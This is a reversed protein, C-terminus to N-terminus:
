LKDRLLRKSIPITNPMGVNEMKATVMAQTIAMIQAETLTSNVLAETIAITQEPTLAATVEQPFSALRRRFEEQHPTPQM